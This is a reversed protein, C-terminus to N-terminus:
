GRDQRARRAAAPLGRRDVAHRLVRHRQAGDQRLPRRRRPRHPHLVAGRRRARLDGRAAARAVQLVRGSRRAHDVTRQARGGRRRFHRRRRLAPRTRADGERPPHHRHLPRQRRRHHHRRGGHRRRARQHGRRHPRRGQGHDAGAAAEGARGPVGRHDGLARVQGRRRARQAARRDQRDVPQAAGGHLRPPRFEPRHEFGDGGPRHRRDARHRDEFGVFEHRRRETSGRLNASCQSAKRDCQPVASM